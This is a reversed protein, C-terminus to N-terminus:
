LDLKMVWGDKFAENDRLNRLANNADQQSNYNGYVVRNVNNKSVARAEKHGQKKLLCVYNEANKKSVKSALVIVYADKEYTKAKEKAPQMKTAAISDCSKKIDIKKIEATGKVIDKPMIRDLMRTDIGSGATTLDQNDLPSPILLFAIIAICAAAINRLVSLRISITKEDKSSNNGEPAIATKEKIQKTEAKQLSLPKFEFSGLGYLCPTLIGAECPEFVYNGDSNLSITGINHLEYVGENEIREKIERVEDAIKKVADPYSTDYAEVYSQALLSDNMRLTPNFGITRLPPIFMNDREDFRADAHHAMFGGFDPVIVCDNSLLLIEIHRELEIVNAFNLNKKSRALDQRFIKKRNM